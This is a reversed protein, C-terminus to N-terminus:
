HPQPLGHIANWRGKPSWDVTKVYAQYDQLDGPRAVTGSDFLVGLAAAVGVQRDVFNADYVRDRPYKGKTYHNTFSWLYPSLVDPHYMRFGVGNFAELKYLTGALSWDNWTNLRDHAIADAASEEWTYPNAASPAQPAAQGRKLQPDAAPRNAPDHVTRATLPDGNHLHTNFDFDSERMHMLGVVWWPMTITASAREYRARNAIIQNAARRVDAVKDARIELTAFLRLYEERVDKLEPFDAM